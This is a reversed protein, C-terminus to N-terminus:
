NPQFRPFVLTLFPLFLTAYQARFLAFITHNARFRISQLQACTFNVQTSVGHGLEVFNKRQLRNKLRSKKLYNVFIASHTSIGKNFEFGGKLFALQCKQKIEFSEDFFFKVM